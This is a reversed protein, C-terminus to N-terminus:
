SSMKKCFHRLNILAYALIKFGYHIISRREYRTVLKRFKDEWAFVREITDFREEFISEQYLRPRGRKISKSNRPNEKINPIMNANFIEKRNARSDYGADLSVITGSLDLGLAKAIQKLPHLANPLLKIENTNGPASIFPAIVNCNRDCFAVVKDGKHHKHGNRGINDGGNKAVTCTGDGHIVDLLLLNADNLDKISSVFIKIFAGAEIWRKMHAYVRQYSIERLGTVPDLRIPLNFWQIGSHLVFLVYNFIDFLPIKPKPGRTGIPLHPLAHRQFQEETFRVPIAPNAPIYSM